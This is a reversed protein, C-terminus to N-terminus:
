REGKYGRSTYITQSKRENVDIERESAGERKEGKEDLCYQHM